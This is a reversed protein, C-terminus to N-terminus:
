PPFALFCERALRALFFLGVGRLAVTVVRTEDICLRHSFLPCDLTLTEYEGGEGAAHNGYEEERRCFLPQLQELSQGLHAPRLGMAAVKIVIAEVGLEIM